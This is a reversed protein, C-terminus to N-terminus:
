LTLIIKGRARGTESYRHAEAVAQLPLLRDVQLRLAEKIAFETMKLERLSAYDGERGDGYVSALEDRVSKMWVPKRLM